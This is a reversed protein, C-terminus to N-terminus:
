RKSPRSTEGAIARRPPISQENRFFNEPDVVAKVKTLRDFNEGFYKLGYVKGQNFSDKGWNNVGIDLDRYNLYSGRPNKSVFPTMYSYLTKLMSTANNAAESGAEHWTISYQIKFLNGARHPFPTASANIENMKGGYPNFVLGAKGLKIMLDWLNNLGEKSIPTQVYDSKRKLYDASNLDRNLLTEPKTVNGQDWWIVSDIWRMETCNEKKLGLEPLEKSLLTVLSSSDGLYLAVVTARFTKKKNRTVPQLLLRMFLNDDISPAVSQWKYVLDTAGDVLYRESRFVTVVEPVPVLKIKYALVVGFSAGGGGNIAWFLDEGMSKRDLVRGNVDILKADLVNDVSLGYKRLMNGYGGGSLHGGVGVTPCVGAPFGLTKSKEWIRYYVEGLTAGAGVWASQERMNISIDRLNFMDLLVFPQDSTYSVGEYDHGGSRIKLRYGARKTCTVTAQVDLNSKATIILTPKRTSSSNFRANRIYNSLTTAFSPSSQTFVVGNKTQNKFCQLFVSAASSQAFSPSSVNILVLSLFFVLYPKKTTM